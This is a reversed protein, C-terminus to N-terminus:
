ATTASTDSSHNAAASFGSRESEDDLNTDTQTKKTMIKSTPKSARDQRISRFINRLVFASRKHENSSSMGRGLATQIGM